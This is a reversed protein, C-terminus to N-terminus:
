AELAVLTGDIRGVTADFDGPSESGFHEELVDKFVNIHVGTHCTVTASHAQVLEMDHRVCKSIIRTSPITRGEARIMWAVCAPEM